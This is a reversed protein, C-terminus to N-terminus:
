FLEIGNEEMINIFEMIKKNDEETFDGEISADYADKGTIESLVDMWEESGGEVMGDMEDLYDKDIGNNSLVEMVYDFNIKEM